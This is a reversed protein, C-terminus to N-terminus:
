IYSFAYPSYIFTHVDWDLQLLQLKLWSLYNRPEKEFVTAPARERLSRLYGQSSAFSGREQSSHAWGEKRGGLMWGLLM